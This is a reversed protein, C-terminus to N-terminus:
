AKSMHHALLRLAFALAAERPSPASAILAICFLAHRPDAHRDLHM